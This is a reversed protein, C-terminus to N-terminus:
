SYVKRASPKVSKVSNKGGERGMKDWKGRKGKSVPGKLVALPDWSCQLSGWRATSHLGASISNPANLKLITVFM